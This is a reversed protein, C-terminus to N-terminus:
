LRSSLTTLWAGQYTSSVVFAAALCLGLAMVCIRFFAPAPPVRVQKHVFDHSLRQVATARKNHLGLPTIIARIAAADAAAAAEPTPCLELLQWLVFRVQLSALFAYIQQYVDTEFAPAVLVTAAFPLVLRTIWDGGSRVQLTASFV